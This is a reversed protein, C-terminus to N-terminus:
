RGSPLSPSAAVGTCQDAHFLTADHKFQVCPLADTKTDEGRMVTVEGCDFIVPRNNEDRRYDHWGRLSGQKGSAAGAPLDVLEKFVGLRPRSAAPM